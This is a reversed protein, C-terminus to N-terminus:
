NRRQKLPIEKPEGKSEGAFPDRYNLILHSTDQTNVYQDAQTKKLVAPTKSVPVDDSDGTADIIRYIIIGWVMLVAGILFYNLVKKKM